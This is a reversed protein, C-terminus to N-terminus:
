PSEQNLPNATIAAVPGQRSRCWERLLQEILAAWAGHPVRQELESYLELEVKAVIDEPLSLHKSVPRLIKPPKGRAM